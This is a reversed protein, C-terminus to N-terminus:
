TKVTELLDDLKLNMATIRDIANDDQGHEETTDSQNSRAKLLSNATNIATVIAIKEISSNTNRKRLERMSHDIYAAAELLADEDGARCAIQVHNDMIRLKLPKSSVSKGQDKADGSNNGKQSMARIGDIQAQSDLRDELAEFEKNFSTASM